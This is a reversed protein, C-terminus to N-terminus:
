ARTLRSFVAHRLQPPLAGLMALIAVYTVGAVAIRVLVHWSHTLLLLEIVMGLAAWAPKILVRLNPRWHWRWLTIASCLLIIAEASVTAIAAGVIGFPGILLLNLFLNLSAAAALIATYTRLRHRALYAGGIAGHMFLLGTGALLLRFAQEGDRFPQGFLLALLDPAVIIGGAVLPLGVASAMWLSGTLVSSAHAPDDRARVLAPQFVIHASTAIATLLFCVRYGASYLGVQANTTLLGLLVMGATVIVTRLLRNTIVTGAGRLIVAGERLSGHNWGRWVLSSLVAAACLEGAAQAIPVGLLDNSDHVFGLVVLLYVLQAATLALGVPFTRELAKYGWAANVAQPVIVLGSLAILARTTHPWPLAFALVVVAAIGALSFALRVKTVSAVIRHADGVARAVARSGLDQLAANPVLVLYTTIATAFALEGFGSAGLRRTLLATAVFAIGRALLESSGLTVFGSLPLRSPWLTAPGSAADTGSPGDPPSPRTPCM